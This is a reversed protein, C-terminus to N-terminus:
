VGGAGLHRRLFALTALDEATGGGEHGNFPYVAMEKPGGYAHFAGFVTSPPVVADMLAASFRAPARGRRAMVVGDVHALVGMVLDVQERHTALYRTVEHFPDADTIALARPFDCLFPVEVALAAVDPVLAAAAIATGGGQSTGAVAVREPDLGDLTRVADVARAADTFLRRYYYTEPSTIGRTMVGPVQPGNTGTDPTDGRSWGSGQGRTDMQLHAFGASAWLLSEEAAGRGGGYGVYEVLVPLPGGGRLAPAPLRLWARVPEGAFGPFTVDHVELTRLPTEVPRVAVEGGAARAEALTRAWFADVGDPDEVASRYEWLEPESIDTRM